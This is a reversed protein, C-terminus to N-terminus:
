RSRTAIEHDVIRQLRRLQQGSRKGGPGDVIRGDDRARATAIARAADWAEPELTRYIADVVPHAFEEATINRPDAVHALLLDAARAGVDDATEGRRSALARCVAALDAQLIGRNLMAHAEDRAAERTAFTHIWGTYPLSSHVCWPHGPVGDIPEVLLHGVREGDPHPASGSLIEQKM